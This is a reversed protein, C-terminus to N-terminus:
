PFSGGFLRGGRDVIESPARAAAVLQSAVGLVHHLHIVPPRVRVPADVVGRQALVHLLEDVLDDLVRDGVAEDSRALLGSGLAHLSPVNETVNDTVPGPPLLELVTVSIIVTFEAAGVGVVFVECATCSSPM